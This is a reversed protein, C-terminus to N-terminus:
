TQPNAIWSVNETLANFSKDPLPNNRALIRTGLYAALGGLVVAAGGVIAWCAWMPLDPALYNLLFVAAITLHILGLTAVAVGIGLYQVAQKTKRVDEKFEARVMDVQQRLLRQGDTLIGSVLESLKPQGDSASVVSTGMPPNVTTSM